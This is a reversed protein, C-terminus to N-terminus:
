MARAPGAWRPVDPDAFAPRLHADRGVPELGCLSRAIWSEGCQSGGVSTPALTVSLKLPFITRSLPYNGRRARISLGLRDGEQRRVLVDTVGDALGAPDRYRWTTGARNGVWASGAPVAVDLVVRAWPGHSLTLRIGRSVPEIAVSSPVIMSGKFWLTEGDSAGNLGTVRLWANGIVIAAPGFCPDVADCLTDGDSDVLMCTASCCGDVGNAAGHDCQEGPDVIGDGCMAHADAAMGAALCLTAVLGAVMRRRPRAERAVTM